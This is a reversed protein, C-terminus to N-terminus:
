RGADELAQALAGEKLEAVSLHLLEECIGGMVQTGETSATQSSESGDQQTNLNVYGEAGQELLTQIETMNGITTSNHQNLVGIGPQSAGSGVVSTSSSASSEAQRELQEMMIAQQMAGPNNHVRFQFPERSMQQADAPSVPAMSFLMLAALGAMPIILSHFRM